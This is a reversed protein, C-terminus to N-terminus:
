WVRSTVHTLTPKINLWRQLCHTLMLNANQQFIISYAIDLDDERGYTSSIVSEALDRDAVEPVVLKATLYISLNHESHLQTERRQTFLLGCPPQSSTISGKRVEKKTHELSLNVLSYRSVTNTVQCLTNTAESILLKTNLFHERAM